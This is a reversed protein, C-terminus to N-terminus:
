GATTRAFLAAFDRTVPGEPNSIVDFAKNRATTERLAQVVLSAVDARPISPKVGEPPHNLLHDDEGVLLERDGGPEDLLGGARIITYALGSDILHQEAKRKWILIKGNGISNLFHNEDTGGMSGVVVVQQVGAAKAVEIQNVQGQYDVIEPEEGPAFGMQPRQGPESPPAVVQPVASTLIVLGQCGEIAGKLSERDRIDGFVFGETSGFVQEAKEPSRAFGVVEFEQPRERLKQVVLSGTRGTAGTVLIRKM